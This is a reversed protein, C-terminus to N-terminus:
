KEENRVELHDELSQIVGSKVANIFGRSTATAGSIVDVNLSQSRMYEKSINKFVEEYYGSTENHKLINIETVRSDEIVVQTQIIGGFGTGIGIYSGDQMNGIDALALIVTNSKILPLFIYMSLILIMSLFIYKKSSLIKKGIRLSYGQTKNICTSETCDLCNVCEPSIIGGDTGKIDVPCSKLCHTCNNCEMDGHIKFPGIVYLLSQFAGLPCFIRCFMRKTFLSTVIILFLVMSGIQINFGMFINLFGLWPSIPSIIYGLGLISLTLVIILVFYKILELKFVKVDLRKEKINLRAGIFKFFDQLAGIPCIYGCFIRGFLLSSLGIAITLAISRTIGRWRYSVDTFASKLATWGGYPNLEGISFLRFSILDHIYLCYIICNLIVYITILLQITSRRKIKM